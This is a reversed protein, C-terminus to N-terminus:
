DTFDYTESYHDFSLNEQYGQERFLALIQEQQEPLLLRQGSNYRYYGSQSGLYEIVKERLLSVDKKRVNEFMKSFGYAGRIPTNARYM